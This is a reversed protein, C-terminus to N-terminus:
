IEYIKGRKVIDQPSLRYIADHIYVKLSGTGEFSGNLRECAIDGAIGM